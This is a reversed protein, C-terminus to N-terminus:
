NRNKYRDRKQESEKMKLEIYQTKQEDTLLQFKQHKIKLQALKRETQKAQNKNILAKATEEDFTENYMIAHM